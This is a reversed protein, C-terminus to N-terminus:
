VGVSQLNNKTTHWTERYGVANAYLKYCINPRKGKQNGMILKYKFAFKIKAYIIYIYIYRM